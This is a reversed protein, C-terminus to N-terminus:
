RVRHIQFRFWFNIEGTNREALPVSKDYMVHLGLLEEGEGRKEREEGEGREREREVVM